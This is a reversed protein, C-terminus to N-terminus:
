SVTDLKMHIYDESRRRSGLDRRYDRRGALKHAMYIQLIPWESKGGRAQTLNM